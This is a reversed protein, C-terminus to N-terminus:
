VDERRFQSNYIESYVVSKELLESHTGISEIKGDDLVIIKDAHEISATRQSVIFVVSNYEIKAIERRLSADTAYDLASSSDDLILIQPKGVLARAITLRQRQGGSLNKGGQEIQFDLGQAKAEIIDKAQAIEIARMIDSDSANKDGWLLNERLTGKFLVAKQPVVGIKERLIETDYSNVNKGDVLVEGCTADYFRGILNILSTKGSATAGIIGVTEGKKVSFNINELTYEPSSAYKLSVNRFEVVNDTKENNDTLTISQSPQVEFVGQIRNASAVSKTITIILNALKILEILIQSMYNYIAIVEGQTLNGSNVEIAGSWILIAISINVIAYTLPNMIASIRGVFKQAKNLDETKQHFKNKENGELRFARIVRVGSLNERSTNLVSDLKNQVKKYLPITLCMIGFVVLALLPITALFILSTKVDVILAMTMAGLVIIPSRMFLRLTLNVGSQVQNADSTMRTILTSTGLTDIETYSLSSIHSFLAHRIKAVFGCSAKAAFYQAFLTCTLGILGLAAMILCAKIIYSGDNGAIGVDIISAVVLPIILEFGAELMKFLPSLVCEKCYGKMYVLLRRM